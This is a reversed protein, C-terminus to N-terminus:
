KRRQTRGPFGIVNYLVNKCQQVLGQVRNRKWGEERNKLNSLNQQDIILNVSEGLDDGNYKM